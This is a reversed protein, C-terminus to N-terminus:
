NFCLLRFITAVIQAAQDIASKLFMPNWVVRETPPVFILACREFFAQVLNSFCSVPHVRM